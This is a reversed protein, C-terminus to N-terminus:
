VGPLGPRRDDQRRGDALWVLELGRRSPLRRLQESRFRDELRGDLQEVGRARGHVGTDRGPNLRDLDFRPLSPAPGHGRLFLFYAARGAPLAPALFPFLLGFGPRGRRLRHHREGGMSPLGSPYRVAVLSGRARQCAYERPTHQEWTFGFGSGRVSWS